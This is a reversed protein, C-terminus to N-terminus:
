IFRRRSKVLQYVEDIHIWHVLLTLIGGPYISDGFLARGLLRLVPIENGSYVIDRDCMVYNVFMSVADYWVYVNMGNLDFEDLEYKILYIIVIDM